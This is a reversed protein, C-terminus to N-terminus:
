TFVREACAISPQPAIAHLLTEFLLGLARWISIRQAKVAMAHTTMQKSASLPPYQVASEPALRDLAM